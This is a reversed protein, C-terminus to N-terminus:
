ERAAGQRSARGPTQNKSDGPRKFRISDLPGEVMISLGAIKEVRIM